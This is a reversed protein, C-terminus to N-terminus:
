LTKLLMSQQKIKGKTERLYVYYLSAKGRFQLGATIMSSELPPLALEKGIAVEIASEILSWAQVFHGLSAMTKEDAPEWQGQPAKEHSPSKAM